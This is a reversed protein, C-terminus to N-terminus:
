LQHKVTRYSNNINAKVLHYIYGGRRSNNKIGAMGRNKKGPIM